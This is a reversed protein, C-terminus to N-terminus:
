FVAGRAQMPQLVITAGVIALVLALVLFPLMAVRAVKKKFLKRSIQYITVASVLFGAYVVFVQVPSIIEYPLVPGVKWEPQGFIPAGLQVFINQFAPIIGGAGIVFHFFYHAIWISFGLPLLSLAYRKFLASLKEDSGALLKTLWTTLWGVLAPLAVVFLLFLLTYSWFNDRIGTLNGVFRQVEVFPGVMGFAKNIAEFTLVLAAVGLWFDRKNINTWLERVPNRLELGVNGYPCAKACSMQYTCDINSQKTGMYLSMQCGEQKIESNGKICEKTTCSKCKAFSKSTVHTPSVMSYMQNFLGLPCVYKCFANGKYITDTILAGGFYMVTVLATLQPSDWLSFQEYSFLIALLLVLPLWKHRMWRPVVKNLGVRKQVAHSVMVFPCSMCFLNGVFLIVMVLWFRYNVWAANTAFNRPGPQQGFFGDYILLLAGILLIGQLVTRSHKWLLVQRLGPVTYLDFDHREKDEGRKPNVPSYAPQLVITKRTQQEL